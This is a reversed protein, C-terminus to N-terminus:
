DLFTITVSSASEVVHANTIIHGLDDFVFGSGHSGTERSSNIKDVDIRVVGSESKEFLEVLTLSKKTSLITEDGFKTVDHGNSIILDPTSIQQAPMLVFAFILIVAAAGIVGGVIFGSKTM